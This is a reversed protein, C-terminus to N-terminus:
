AQVTGMPKLRQQIQEFRTPEFTVGLPPPPLDTFTVGEPPPPLFTVGAPPPPLSDDVFTVGPPAPPLIQNGNSM